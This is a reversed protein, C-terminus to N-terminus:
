QHANKTRPIAAMAKPTTAITQVDAVTCARTQTKPAYRSISPTDSKMESTAPSGTARRFPQATANIPTMEIKIPTADKTQDSATASDTTYTIANQAIAVPM